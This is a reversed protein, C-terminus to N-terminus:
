KLYLMRKTKVFQDTQLRYIYLGSPMLRGSENRGDWTAQYAGAPQRQMILVRVKQGLVNFIALEVETDQALHYRIITQPNFPNPYNQELAFTQPARAAQDSVTTVVEGTVADIGVHLTDASVMSIYRFLWLAGHGELLGHSLAAEVFADPHEFRFNHSESEALAAAEQSDKWEQPLPETSLVNDSSTVEAHFGGPYTEVVMVSDSTASYYAYRWDLSRGDPSIHHTGVNVLQADTAWSNAPESAVQLREFATEPRSVLLVEGTVADVAIDLFENFTHYSFWWVASQASEPAQLNTSAKLERDGTLRLGNFNLEPRALEIEGGMPTGLFAMVNVDEYSGRFDAGGNQEAVAAASDSDIWNDPLGLLDVPGQRLDAPLVFDGLLFFASFEDRSESRFIYAWHPAGGEADLYETVVGVLEADEAWDAVATEIDDLRARATVSPLEVFDLDVGSVSDGNAVVVTDPTGNNDPDYFGFDIGHRGGQFALPLYTGDDVFDVVYPSNAVTIGAIEDYLENKRLLAVMAGSGDGAFTSVEGAVAGSPLSEATTFTIVYARDLFQGNIGHAGTLIATYKTDEALPINHATVTMLDQSVTISDPEGISDQPFFDIELFGRDHFYSLTDLPESFTLEFDAVVPVSTEGHAPWSAILQLPGSVELVEGTVADVGVRLHENHDHANYEFWWVAQGDDDHNSKLIADVWVQPFRNRFDESNAEAVAAAQPSDIWSEPLPEYSHMQDAPSVESDSGGGFTQVRLISDVSPSYYQFWWEQALGDPTIGHTGLEFLLADEAWASAVNDAGDLRERATNPASSFLVEGTLADIAVDFFQEEAESFYNFFWVAEPEDQNQSPAFASEHLQAFHRLPFASKDGGDDPPPPGEFGSFSHLVGYVEADSFETRFDSGGNAEAVAAASDSDIWEAPLGTTDPLFLSDVPADVIANSIVFFGRFEVEAESFFLYSWGATQGAADLESSEIAVLAADAAWAEAAAEVNTFNARATVAEPLALEIDIGSLAAGASVVIEDARGNGDPDYLGFADGPQFELEGDGDTDQVALLTYQGDPVYNMTYPSNAVTMSVIDDDFLSEGFLALVAGAPDGDPFTVEGAVSGAPLSTATTFTVVYPRDLFEGAQSRAGTLLVIYRTDSQLQIGSATFTTLDESLQLDPEATTDEPFLEIALFFDDEEDFRASTDLPASFTLQFDVTTPVSTEGDQPNSAVVSFQASATASLLLTVFLASAIQFGFRAM